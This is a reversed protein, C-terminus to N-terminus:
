PNLGAPARTALRSLNELTVSGSKADSAAGIEQLIQGVVVREPDATTTLDSGSGCRLAQLVDRVSIQDLPRSPLYSTEAGRTEILLNSQNLLRLLEKALNPPIGLEESLRTATSPPQCQAFERAIRTM